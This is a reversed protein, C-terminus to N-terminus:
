YKKSFIKDINFGQQELKMQLQMFIPNLEDNSTLTPTLESVNGFAVHEITPSTLGSRQRLALLMLAPYPIFQWNLNDYEFFCKSPPAAVQVVQDDCLQQVYNTIKDADTTNWDAIIHPYSFNDLNANLIESSYAGYLLIMFDTMHSESRNIWGKAYGNKFFEFLKLAIDHKNLLVAIALTFVCDPRVRRLLERDFRQPAMKQGYFSIGSHLVALTLLETLKEEALVRQQIFTVEVQKEIHNIPIGLETDIFEWPKRNFDDKVDHRRQLEGHKIYFDLVSENDDYLYQFKSVKRPAANRKRLFKELEKSM